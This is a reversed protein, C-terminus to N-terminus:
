PKGAPLRARFAEAQAPREWATYLAVLRKVNTVTRPSDPGFTSRFVADSALLHAEAAAFDRALTEHEGLVGESSAILWSGPALYRRRLALSEELARGAEATRGLHDLCRGLTQLTTAIAPHSEPLSKGRLALIERALKTAEEYRGRDFIFMAYNMQTFAFDPHTRGLLKERLRLVDVYLSEAEDYKGQIDLATALANEADAVLTTPEPHNLKLIAVSARHLSEAAAWRNQEGLAVAVNNMSFAVMDHRPGLLGARIDLAERHYKEADALQGNGHAVSGVNDLLNALLTDPTGGLARRLALGARFASDAAALEGKQLHVGGLNSLGVAVSGSRPGSVQRRLTLASRLHAEADDLRGLALYSQGIVSEMEARVDPEDALEREIRQAAADLLESVPVDRGGTTPRVSRLLQELFANVRETRAQARRARRAEINTTIVGGVLAVLVLASAAVAARNRQLFKRLRYGAWGRRAEVPLGALHRRVDDSLAEVSRYRQGPEPRLAKLVISDLEGALRRRLRDASREGAHGAAEDTVVGSPAPAPQELVAREIAAVSRGPALHPRRGALLEFLVVGLAYVDSATTLADGRIQEPSAYEPTFARTGDRTVPLADDGADEGLLKAVGFDLLKVSGDGTVLINGPKLDRHIVLNQHAHQVAGCVQRFLLLRERVSLSRADCWRTLAEGEVYEMVLFPRGDPSVGGDLLTAINKHELNALIQRELRFRALTLASHHRGQVLKIAVRKKFQGDDRVAEYVAGMGGLGILRVVDYPGLRQGVLDAGLGAETEGAGLPSALRPDTSEAGALLARVEAVVGPDLGAGDALWALRRAAPQDMAADFLARVRRLREADDTM